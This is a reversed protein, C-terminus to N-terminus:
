ADMNLPDWIRERPIRDNFFFNIANTGGELFYTVRSDIMHGILLHSQPLLYFPDISVKGAVSLAPVLM